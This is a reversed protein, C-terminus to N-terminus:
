SSSIRQPNAARPKFTVDPDDDDDDELDLGKKIAWPCFEDFLV